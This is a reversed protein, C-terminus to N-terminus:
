NLRTVNHEFCQTVFHPKEGPDSLKFPLVSPDIFPPLPTTKSAGPKLSKSISLIHDDGVFAKPTCELLFEPTYGHRLTMYPLAFSPDRSSTGFLRNYLGFPM